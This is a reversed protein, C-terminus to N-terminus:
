KEKEKFDTSIHILVTKKKSIKKIYIEFAVRFKWIGVERGTGRCV